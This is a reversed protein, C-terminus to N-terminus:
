LIKDATPPRTPPDEPACPEAEYDLLLYTFSASVESM